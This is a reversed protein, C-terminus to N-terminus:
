KSVGNLGTKLSLGWGFMVEDSTIEARITNSGARLTVPVGAFDARIRGDSEPPDWRWGGEYVKEENVWLRLHDSFGFTLMTERNEPLDIMCKAQVAVGKGSAYLRNLNLTGNEEVFAQTWNNDSAPQSGQPYPKSVTWETVFTEAALRKLDADKKETRVPEIREVSLNRIYSPLYGWVGIKGVSSGLQLKAIVLQPPGQEGVRVAFGHPHIDMSLKAWEGPLFPVPAQYDPGNYIQWTSSRNMIPDYQIEGMATQDGPSIYVLEFNSSDRAGFVLGVFGIPGPCAIEAQLRFSELRIDDRLLVPSIDNNNFYLAERGQWVGPRADSEGLDFLNLDDSLSWQLKSM